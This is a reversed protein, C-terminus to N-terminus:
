KLLEGKHDCRFLAGDIIKWYNHQNKGHNAYVMSISCFQINYFGKAKLETTIESLTM